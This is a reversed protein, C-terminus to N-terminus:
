CAAVEGPDTGLAIGTGDFDGRSERRLLLESRAARGICVPGAATGSSAASTVPSCDRADGRLRLVESLFRKRRELPPTGAAPAVDVGADGAVREEEPRPLGGGDVGGDVPRDAGSLLILALVAAM